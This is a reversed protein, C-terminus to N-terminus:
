PLIEILPVSPIAGADFAALNVAIEDADFRVPL